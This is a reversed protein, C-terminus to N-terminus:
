EKITAFQELAKELYKRPCAVNFREFQMGDPGFINGADLWLRAKNVVKDNLESDSYGLGSCDIWPLYTGEIPTMKVEPMKEQLFEKMFCINNWVYEKMAEMWPEGKTYAAQTAVVGFLSPEYYGTLGMETKYKARLEDNPIFINSYQLGALNFTKSPATCVICNEATEKSLSAFPIHRNEQWVFDCHIEDSCVIVGNRRCIEDLRILEEKKWVRGVPNHPNCMLFMKVNNDKIKQEFDEFDITYYNTEKNCILPNNIVKRGLKRTMNTFPYYVPQQILVAEGPKTYTRIAISFAFVVGPTKVLWKEEPRWGFRRAFWDCVIGHFDDQTETYGFIGQGARECIASIIEPSTKFDMDALSLSLADEPIGNERFFDYKLCKTGRRDPISDFNYQM